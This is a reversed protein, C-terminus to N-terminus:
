QHAHFSRPIPPAEWAQALATRRHQHGSFNDVIPQFDVRPNSPPEHGGRFLAARTAPVTTRSLATQQASVHFVGQSALLIVECNRAVRQPTSGAGGPSWITGNLKM